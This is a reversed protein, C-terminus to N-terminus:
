DEPKEDRKILHSRARELADREEPSLSSIGDRSIKELIQDISQNVKRERMVRLNRKRAERRLKRDEMWRTLFFETSGVGLLRMGFYGIGASVWLMGLWPWAHSAFHLLSLFALYIWAIYKFPIQLIFASANPYIRCFAIFLGTAITGAGYYFSVPFLLSILTLFVGPIIILAAYLRLFSARGIFQEVQAGFFWFMVMNLLIGWGPYIFYPYTVIQWLYGLQLVEAPALFLYPLIGGGGFGMLLACVVFFAVHVAILFHAMYLAHGNIWMLPRYDDHSNSFQM